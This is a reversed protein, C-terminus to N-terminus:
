GMTCKEKPVAVYSRIEPCHERIKHPVISGDSRIAFWNFGFSELMQIIERARYGWAQTTADFVECIFIPRFRTLVLSADQFVEREGGEVDLKVLDVRKL